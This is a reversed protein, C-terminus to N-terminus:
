PGAYKNFKFHFHIKRLWFDNSYKCLFILCLFYLIIILLQQIINGNFRLLFHLHSYPRVHSIRTDKTKSSERSVIFCSLSPIFWPPIVLGFSRRFIDYFSGLYICVYTSFTNLYYHPMLPAHSMLPWCLAQHWFHSCAQTNWWKFKM